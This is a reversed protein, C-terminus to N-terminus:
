TDRVRGLFHISPFFVVSLIGAIKEGDMDAKPLILQIKILILICPVIDKFREMLSNKLKKEENLKGESTTDGRVQHSDRSLYSPQPISTVWFM